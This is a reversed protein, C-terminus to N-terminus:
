LVPWREQLRPSKMDRILTKQSSFNLNVGVMSANLGALSIIEYLATESRKNYSGSDPEFYDLLERESAVVHSTLGSISLISFILFLLTNKKMFDGKRSV